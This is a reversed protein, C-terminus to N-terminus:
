RIALQHKDPSRKHPQPLSDAMGILAAQRAGHQRSGSCQVINQGLTHKAQLHATLTTAIRSKRLTGLTNTKQSGHTINM